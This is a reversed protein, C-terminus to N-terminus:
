PRKRTAVRAYARGDRRQRIKVRRVAGRDRYSQALNFGRQSRARVVLWAFWVVAGVFLGVTVVLVAVLESTM